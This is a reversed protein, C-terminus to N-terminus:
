FREAWADIRYGLAARLAERNGHIDGVLGHLAM